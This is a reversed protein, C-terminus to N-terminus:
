GPRAVLGVLLRQQTAAIMDWDYHREVLARGAVALRERLGADGLLRLVADAFDEETDALLLHVGDEVLLGEAGIRTSVVPRGLAMAELIKLRSGGGARLPVVAIRADRYYPVVDPVSGTVTVSDERLALVAGGPDRGVVLFRTDAAHARVRPLVRRAFWIAADECPRYRMSGVFVLVPGGDGQPLRALARTDVGNAVVEIRARPALAQMSARDHESVAFCLDVAAAARPEYARMARAAHARWLRRLPATEIAAIRPTLVGHLNHLTLVRLRARERPVLDFYHTLLTEEVQVLDFTEAALLARLRQALQASRYLALEAPRGRLLARLAGPIHRSRFAHARGTVVRIGTEELSRAAVEDDDSWSHCALTVDHARAMRSALALIRQHLGGHAPYPVVNAIVLIRM